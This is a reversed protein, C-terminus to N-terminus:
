LYLHIRTFLPQQYTSQPRYVDTTYYISAILVIKLCTQTKKVFINQTFLFASFRLCVTEMGKFNKACM